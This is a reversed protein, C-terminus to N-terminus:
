VGMEDIFIYRDYDRTIYFFAEKGDIVGIFGFSFTCTNAGIIRPSYGYYERVLNMCYDYAAQKAQSYRSYVENLDRATAKQYRAYAGGIETRKAHRM